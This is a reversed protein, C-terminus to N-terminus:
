DNEHGMDADSLSRPIIPAWAITGNRVNLYRPPNHTLYSFARAIEASRNSSFVASVASAFAVWDAKAEGDGPRRFNTVKLSYEFRSFMAFFDIALAPNVTLRARAVQCMVPAAFSAAGELSENIPAVTEPENM